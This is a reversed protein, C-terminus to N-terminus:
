GGEDEARRFIVAQIYIRGTNYVLVGRNVGLATIVEKLSQCKFGPCKICFSTATLIMVTKHLLRKM